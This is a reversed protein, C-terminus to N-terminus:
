FNKDLRTQGNPLTLGPKTVDQNQFNGLGIKDPMQTLYSM